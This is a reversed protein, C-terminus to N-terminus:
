STHQPSGTGWWSGGGWMCDRVKLDGAKARQAKSRAEEFGNILIWTHNLSQKNISNIPNTSLSM